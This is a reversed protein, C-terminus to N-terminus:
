AHAIKDYLLQTKKSVDIGMCASFTDCCRHYTMIAQNNQNCKAQCVMLHRYIKELLDDKELCKQYCEIASDFKESKEYSTGLKIACRLFKDRLQQQKSLVWSEEPQSSLFLGHYFDIAKETLAVADDPNKECIGDSWAVDAQGALREFAWVDTWCKKHNLSLCGDKHLIAGKVNIIKRLRHLTTAYNQHAVDGDADPWLIDAIREEVVQRGGLSILTKVMNFPMMKGKGSGAIPDDDIVIEFRGLTFIKVPWPWKEIHLPPSAPIIKQKKILEKVYATEINAENAIMCLNALAKFNIVQACFYQSKRGIKLAKRLSALSQKKNGRSFEFHAKILFGNFEHVNSKWKRAIKLAQVLFDKAERKNLEHYVQAITLLAYCIAYPCGLKKSLKLSINAYLLAQNFDNLMLSYRTLLYYYFSGDLNNARESLGGLKRVYREASKVDNINLSTWLGHGLTLFEMIHIGAASSIAMGKRVAQICKDHDGTMQFFGAQGAFSIIKCLPPANEFRSIDKMMETAYFAEEVHGIVVNAFLYMYYAQAKANLDSSKNAFEMIQKAWFELIEPDPKRYLLAAFMISAFRFKVDESPCENYQKKLVDIGNIYRDIFGYDIGKFIISEVLGSWSLLTGVTDNQNRFSELAKEFHHISGSPDTAIHCVGMWYSLWPSKKITKEPLCLLWRLLTRTRSQSLMKQANELIIRGISEMDGLSKLIDIAADHNNIQEMLSGANKKLEFLVEKEYAQQSLYNLFNRFLPHYQYILRDHFRKETFLQNRNLLALIQGAHKNGSLSKAISVTMYPVLSTKLLFDKINKDLNKLVEEAFYNFIEQSPLKGIQGLDLEELDAQILMLILGAAWGNTAKHLRLLTEKSVENKTQINTIASAEEIDLRIDNWGINKITQNAQYRSLSEAPRDRSVIIVNSKEPVTRFSQCVMKLFPADPHVNQFNDFVITCPSPIKDWLEEFYRKSFEYIGPIREPTLIPLEQTGRKMLHEAAMGFYYFFTAPDADEPDTQYWICPLNRSDLYSSVTITKGCGAPGSVWIVPADRKKDFIKFLRERFYARTLVPRNIKAISISKNGAPQM